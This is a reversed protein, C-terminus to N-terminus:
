VQDNSPKHVIPTWSSNIHKFSRTQFKSDGLAKERRKETSATIVKKDRLLDFKTQPVSRRTPSVLATKKGNMSHAM